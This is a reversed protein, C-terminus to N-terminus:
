GIEYITVAGSIGKLQAMRERTKLGRAGLLDSVGRAKLVPATALIAQPEAIGQVRAAINVTQGFYDLREDLMVALCPGDHVGIKILLDSPGRRNFERLAERMKLAAAMAAAPDTFTAMVADGITKVISGGESAVAQELVDFHRRVLDFASLDGVREYLETSGKLDTFLVTLSELTFQQDPDLADTRFLERFVPHVM